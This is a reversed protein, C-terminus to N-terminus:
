VFPFTKQSLNLHPLTEMNKNQFPKKKNNNQWKLQELSVMKLNQKETIIWDENHIMALLHLEEGVNGLQQTYLFIYSFVIRMKECYTYLFIPWIFIFVHKELVNHSM